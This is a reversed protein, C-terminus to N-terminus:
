LTNISGAGSVDQKVKAPNGKYKITGAGSVRARLEERVFVRANGAGSVEIDMSATELDEAYLKGAGSIEIDAEGAQGQLELNGAGSLEVDLEASQIELEIDAAGNGEIKLREASLVNEGTVQVGGSFSLSRLNRYGVHVKLCEFNGIRGGTEIVLTSGRVETRILDMLNEDAEILLSESSDRTLIIEFAGGAKIADFSSVKRELTTVQGNGDLGGIGTLCSTFLAISLISAFLLSLSSTKM